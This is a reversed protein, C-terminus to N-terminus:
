TEHGFILTKIPEFIQRWKQDHITTFPPDWINNRFFGFLEFKSFIKHGHQECYFIVGLFSNEAEYAYAHALYLM